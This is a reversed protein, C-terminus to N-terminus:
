AGPTRVAAQASAGAGAEDDLALAREPCARVGRRAQGEMGEPVRIEVVAIYGNDDLAFIDPAAVNCRAHGCCKAKDATVKM